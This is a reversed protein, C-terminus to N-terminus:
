RTGTRRKRDLGDRVARAIRGANLPKSAFTDFPGLQLDLVGATYGSMFLVALDPLLSRIERAVVDGTMEPMVVDTVLLEFSREHALTIAETPRAAVTVRYGLRTLTREVVDRVLDDDELVLISETGGPTLEDMEADPAIPGGAVPLYVKFTTGRGLESYVWIRGRAREVAGFVM